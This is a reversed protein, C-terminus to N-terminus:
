RREGTEVSGLEAVLDMLDLRTLDNNVEAGDDFLKYFVADVSACGSETPLQGSVLHRAHCLSLIYVSLDSM